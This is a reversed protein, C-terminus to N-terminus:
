SKTADGATHFVIVDPPRVGVGFAKLTRQSADYAPKGPVSFSQSWRTSVKQAAYAGFVTLVLWVGIVAWRHRVTLRAVRTLM